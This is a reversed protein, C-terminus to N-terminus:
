EPLDPNFEIADLREQSRNVSARFDNWRKDDHLNALTPLMVLMIAGDPDRDRARALWDFALDPQNMWAAVQAILEVEMIPMTDILKQLKADAEALKGTSFLAMATGATAREGGEASFSNFYELALEAEGQLLLILGYHFQGGSGIAMYRERAALAREYDGAYMNSRSLQYM